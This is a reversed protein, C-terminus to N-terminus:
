PSLILTTVAKSTICVTKKAKEQLNPKTEHTSFTTIQLFLVFQPERINVRTLNQQKKQDENLYLHLQSLGQYINVNNMNKPQYKSLRPNQDISYSGM